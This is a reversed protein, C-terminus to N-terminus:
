DDDRARRRSRVRVGTMNVEQPTAKRARDGQPAEMGALFHQQEPRGGRARPTERVEVFGAEIAEEVQQVAVRRGMKIPEADSEYAM